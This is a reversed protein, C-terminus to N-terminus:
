LRLGRRPPLRNLPRRSTIGARVPGPQPTRIQALKLTEKCHHLARKRKMLTREQGGYPLTAHCLNQSAPPNDWLGPSRTRLTTPAIYLADSSSTTSCSFAKASDCTSLASSHLSPKLPSCRISQSRYMPPPKRWRPTPLHPSQFCVPRKSPFQLTGLADAQLVQSRLSGGGKSNAEAYQASFNADQQAADLGMRDVRAAGRDQDEERLLHGQERMACARGTLSASADSGRIGTSEKCLEPSPYYPQPQPHQLGPQGKSGPPLRAQPQAQGSLGPPLRAQAQAPAVQRPLTGSSSPFLLAQSLSHACSSIAPLDDGVVSQSGFVACGEGAANQGPYMVTDPVLSPELRLLDFKSSDLSHQKSSMFSHKVEKDPLVVRPWTRPTLATPTTPSPHTPMRQPPDRKRTPTLCDAFCASPDPEAHRSAMCAKRRGNSSVYSSLPDRRNRDSSKETATGAGGESPCGVSPLLDSHSLTSVSSGQKKVQANVCKGLQSAFMFRCRTPCPHRPAPLRTSHAVNAPCTIASHASGRCPPTSAWTPPARPASLVSLQSPASLRATPVRASASSSAQLNRSSSCAESNDQQEGQVRSTDTSRKLDLSRHGTRIPALDALADAWTGVRDQKLSDGFAGFSAVSTNASSTEGSGPRGMWMLQPMTGTSMSASDGVSPAGWDRSDLRGRMPGLTNSDTLGSLPQPTCPSCEASPSLAAASVLFEWEAPPPLRDGFDRYSIAEDLCPLTRSPRPPLKPSPRPIPPSARPPPRAQDSGDGLAAAAWKASDERGLSISNQRSHRKSETPSLGPQTWDPQAIAPSRCCPSTLSDCSLRSREVSGVEDETSSVTSLTPCKIVMSSTQLPPPNISPASCSLSVLSISSRRSREDYGVEDETSTATETSPASCKIVRSSAQLPPPNTSPAFCSLMQRWYPLKPNPDRGAESVMVEPQDAPVVPEMPHSGQERRGAAQRGRSDAEGVERGRSEAVEMQMGYGRVVIGM